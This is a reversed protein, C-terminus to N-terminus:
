SCMQTHYRELPMKQDIKMVANYAALDDQLLTVLRMRVRYSRMCCYNCQYDSLYESPVIWVFYILNNQFVCKEAFSNLSM